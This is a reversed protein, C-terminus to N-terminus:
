SAELLNALESKLDFYDDVLVRVARRADKQADAEWAQLKRKEETVVGPMFAEIPGAFSGKARLRDVAYGAEHVLRLKERVTVYRDYNNM